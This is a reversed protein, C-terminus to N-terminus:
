FTTAASLFLARLPATRVEDYPQILRTEHTSLWALQLKWDAGDVSLGLRVDRRSQPALASAAQRAISHLLGAHALLHVPGALLYSGNLEGYLTGKREGFYNPAYFLRANVHESAIGLFAEGYNYTPLSRFVSDSLGCEWSLGALSRRAYGTYATLQQGAGAGPLAVGSAFLGAYWGQRSAYDLNFQAQAKGDSLSIGRYRYDSVLTASGSIQALAAGGPLLLALPLLLLLLALMRRLTRRLAPLSM